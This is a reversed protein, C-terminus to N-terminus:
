TDSLEEVTGGILGCQLEPMSQSEVSDRCPLHLGPPARMCDIAAVADEHWLFSSSLRKQSVCAAQRDDRSIALM